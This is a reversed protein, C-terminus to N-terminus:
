VSHIIGTGWYWQQSCCAADGSPTYPQCLTNAILLRLPNACLNYPASCTTDETPLLISPFNQILVVPVRTGSFHQCNFGTATYHRHLLRCWQRVARKNGCYICYLHWTPIGEQKEETGATGSCVIMLQMRWRGRGTNSIAIYIYVIYIFIYQKKM